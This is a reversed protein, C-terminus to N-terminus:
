INENIGLKIIISKFEEQDLSYARKILEEVSNYRKITSGKIFTLFGDDHRVANICEVALTFIEFVTFNNLSETSILTYNKESKRVESKYVLSLLFHLRESQTDFDAFVSSVSEMILSDSIESEYYKTSLLLNLNKYVYIFACIFDKDSINSHRTQTSIIKM